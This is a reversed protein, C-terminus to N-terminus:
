AIAVVILGLRLQNAVEPRGSAGSREVPIADRRPFSSLFLLLALRGVSQLEQVRMTGRSGTAGNNGHTTLFLTKM